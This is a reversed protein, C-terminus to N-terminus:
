VRSDVIEQLAIRVRGWFSHIADRQWSWQIYTTMKLVAMMATTMETSTVDDICVIILADDYDMVHRLCYTLEFQCWESRKFDRSFVMIFKKSREVCEAINDVVNRGLTFDREHICLRLGLGIELEPMLRHRVWESNEAAYSVFVDFDFNNTAWRRQRAGDDRGRFTEYLLLRLHWRYRLFWLVSALSLAFSSCITIIYGCLEQSLLCAQQPLLFDSV